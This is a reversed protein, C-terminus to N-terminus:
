PKMGAKPPPPANPAKKDAARANLTRFGSYSGAGLASPIIRKTLDNFTISM